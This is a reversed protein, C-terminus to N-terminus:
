AITFRRTSSQKCFAAYVDPQAKKFASSDFRSSTISKWIAKFAGCHLEETERATMEAKIEDKLSDAQEQAETILAELRKIELVKAELINESM